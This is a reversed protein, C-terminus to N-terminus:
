DLRLVRSIRWQGERPRWVELQPGPGGTRPHDVQVALYGDLAIAQWSGNRLAEPGQGQCGTQLRGIRSRLGKGAFRLEMLPSFSATPTSGSCGDVARVQADADAAGVPVVLFAALVLVALMAIGAVPKM